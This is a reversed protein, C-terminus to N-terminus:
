HFLFKNLKNKIRIMFLIWLPTKIYLRDEEKSYLDSFVKIRTKWRNLDSFQRLYSIGRVNYSGNHIRWITLQERLFCFNYKHSIQLWLWWDLWRGVPPNFDLSDFVKRRAIVSSFTPVINKKLLLSKLDLNFTQESLRELFVDEPIQLTRRLTDARAQQDDDFIIKVDNFLIVSQFKTLTEIRKQLNDLTWLDDAELFAIYAGSCQSLGLQLTKSLGRNERNPHFFLKVRSDRLYSGIVEVSNDSSGDDVVIVEINGYTQNLLCEIVSGIYKSYNFSPVIISVLPKM